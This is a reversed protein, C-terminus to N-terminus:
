FATARTAHDPLRIKSMTYGPPPPSEKSAAASYALHVIERRGLGPARGGHGSLLLMVSKARARM